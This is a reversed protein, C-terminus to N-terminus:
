LGWSEAWEEVLSSHLTASETTLIPRGEGTFMRASEAPHDREVFPIWKTSYVEYFEATSRGDSLAVILGDAVASLMKVHEPRSIGFGICIPLPTQERLWAVNDILENPLKDREGTIGTVSVFYIFGSTRLM